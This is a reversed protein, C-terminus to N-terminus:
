QKQLLLSKVWVGPGFALIMMNDSTNIEKHTMISELIFLVTCSSMNGYNRLCEWSHELRKDDLELARQVAKLIAPGGPHACWHDIDNFDKLRFKACFGDMFEMMQKQILKPVNKDLTGYIGKEFLRM